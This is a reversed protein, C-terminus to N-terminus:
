KSERNAQIFASVMRAVYANRAQADSFEPIGPGPLTQRALIPLAVTSYLALASEGSAQEDRSGSAEALTEKMMDLMRKMLTHYHGDPAEDFLFTRFATRTVSPSGVLGMAYGQLFLTLREAATKSTDRLITAGYDLASATFSTVAQGILEDKSRFHYNVAAINVGAETAIRRTTIEELSSTRILTRTVELLKERTSQDREEAM